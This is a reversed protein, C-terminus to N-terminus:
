YMFAILFFVRVLKHKDFTHQLVKFNSVYEYEHKTDFKVKTMNVDDLECFFFFIKTIVKKYKKKRKTSVSYQTWLKVILLM